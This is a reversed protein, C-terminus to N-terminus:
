VIAMLCFRAGIRAIKAYVELFLGLAQSANAGEEKMFRIPEVTEVNSLQPTPARVTPAFVAFM